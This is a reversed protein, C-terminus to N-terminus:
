VLSELEIAGFFFIAIGAGFLPLFLLSALILYCYYRFKKFGTYKKKM